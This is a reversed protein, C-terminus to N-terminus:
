MCFRAGIDSDRRRISKFLRCGREVLTYERISPLQDSRSYCARDPCRGHIDAIPPLASFKIGTSWEAKGTAIVGLATPGPWSAAQPAASPAGLWPSREAPFTLLAFVPVQAPQLYDLVYGFSRLGAVPTGACAQAQLRKLEGIVEVVVGTDAAVM